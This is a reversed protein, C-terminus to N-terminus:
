TFKKTSFEQYSEKNLHNIGKKDKILIAPDLYKRFPHFVRRGNKKKVQKLLNKLSIEKENCNFFRKESNSFWKRFFGTDKIQFGLAKAFLPLRLEDNCYEPIQLRAYEELFSKPLSLGPGVSAFYPGNYSHEQKVHNKLINWEQNQISNRTWFWEKEINQLPILGTIGLTNGPIDAYLEELRGAMIIDWELLHLMDFDIHKGFDKYWRLIALDGNKWKWIDDVNRLCYNGTLHNKLIETSTEYEDEKGGFLGFIDIEPNFRSFLELRNSCLTFNKHYRFLTIRKM